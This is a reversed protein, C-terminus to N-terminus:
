ISAQVVTLPFVVGSPCQPLLIRHELLLTNICLIAIKEDPESKSKYLQQKSKSYKFKVFYLKLSKNQLADNLDSM